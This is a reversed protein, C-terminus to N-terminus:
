YCVKRVTGDAYRILCVAGKRPAELRRGLLSYIAVPTTRDLSSPIPESIGSLDDLYTFNNAIIAVLLEKGRTAYGNSQDVGAYDMFIIGTPGAANDRLFDLITAHTHVANDRYGDSSSVTYGFLNLTLSYASAFNMVWRISSSSTTAHTTSFQLLRTMASTKTNLAGDAYTEFFDQMYLTAAGSSPGTIQGKTMSDWSASHSWGRIFGGVPKSAYVDRSLLLMKGRLDGVTLDRRFPVFFDKLGDKGLVDLLQQNYTGDVQDGDTEHLLHIVVFESPNALLSDRLLYLARDFRAITPIIGHNINLYGERTCPRLDFARVGASWLEALNLEQTRAFSDGLDAYATEWGSGTAADHAGPISVVAVYAADPLRSM